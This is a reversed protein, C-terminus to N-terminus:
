LRAGADRRMWGTLFGFKRLRVRPLIGVLVLVAAVVVPWTKLQLFRRGTYTYTAAVVTGLMMVLVVYGSLRHWYYLKKANEVGGYLQPVFYQTLGM